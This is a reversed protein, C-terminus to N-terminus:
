EEVWSAPRSLRKGKGEHRSEGGRGEVSRGGEVEKGARGLGMGVGECTEGM